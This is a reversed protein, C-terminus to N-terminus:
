LRAYMNKIYRMSLYDHHLGEAETLKLESEFRSMFNDAGTVIQYRNIATMMNRLIRVTSETKPSRRLRRFACAFGSAVSGSDLSKHTPHTPVYVVRDRAAWFKSFPGNLAWIETSVIFMRVSPGGLPDHKLVARAIDCNTTALKDRGISFMLGGHRWCQAKDCVRLRLLNGIFRDTLDSQNTHSM